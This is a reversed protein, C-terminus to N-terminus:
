TTLYPHLIKSINWLISHVVQSFKPPNTYYAQLHNSHLRFVRKRRSRLGWDQLDFFDTENGRSRLDFTHPRKAGGGKSLCSEAM